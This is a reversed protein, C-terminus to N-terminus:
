PLPGCIKFLRVIHGVYDVTIGVQQPGNPDESPKLRVQLATGRIPKRKKLPKTTPEWDIGEAIHIRWENSCDM